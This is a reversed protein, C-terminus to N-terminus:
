IKSHKELKLDFPKSGLNLSLGLCEGHGVDLLRCRISQFPQRPVHLGPFVLPVDPKQHTFLPPSRHLFIYISFFRIHSKELVELLKITCKM